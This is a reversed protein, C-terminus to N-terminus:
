VGVLAREVVLARRRERYARAALANRAAPTSGDHRERMHKGTGKTLGLKREKAAKRERYSRSRARSLNQNHERQEPTM